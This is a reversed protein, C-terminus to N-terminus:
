GNVPEEWMVETVNAGITWLMYSQAAYGLTWDVKVRSRGGWYDRLWCVCGDPNRRMADLARYVGVETTVYSRSGGASLSGDPYFTPLPDTDSGLAFHFMEGGFSTSSSVDADLGLVIASSADAGFNFVECGDSDIVANFFVTSATGYKSHATIVYEYQTNLPPLRDILECGDGIGDCILEQVGNVKRAISVRDTEAVASVGVIGGAPEGYFGSNVPIYDRDRSWFEPSHLIGDDTYTWASSGHSVVVHASLDHADVAVYATPLAPEALDIKFLRATSCKLSNGATVDLGVEYEMGTIPTFTSPGFEFSRVEGDLATSFVISGEHRVTLTQSTVGSRSDIGWEVVVPAEAMVSGDIAPRTFYAQPAAGVLFTAYLSWAGFSGSMGKTRVRVKYSGEDEINIAYESTDGQIDTVKSGSPGTVEVQAAVQASGDQHNARWKLPVAAPLSYAYDLEEITPSGPAAVGSIKGSERYPSKLDGKRSCVMARVEGPGVEFEASEGMERDPGFPAGNVSLRCLFGDAWPSINVVQVIVRTASLRSVTVEWPPAPTTFVYNSTSYEQSGEGRVRYRYRRNGIAGYDNYLGGSYKFVAVQVWPEDDVQREVYATRGDTEWEVVVRTDSQRRATCNTPSTAMETTNSM